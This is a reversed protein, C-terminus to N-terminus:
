KPYNNSLWKTFGSASGGFHTYRDFLLAVLSPNTGKDNALEPLALRLEKIYEGLLTSDFVDESSSMKVWNHELSWLTTRSDRFPNEKEGKYYRCSKLLTNESPKM